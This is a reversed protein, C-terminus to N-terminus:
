GSATRRNTAQPLWLAAGPFDGIAGAHETHMPTLVLHKVHETGIGMASCGRRM